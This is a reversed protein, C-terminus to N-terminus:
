ENTSDESETENTEDFMSDFNDNKDKRSMIWDRINELNNLIVAITSTLANKTMTHVQDVSESLENMTALPKDLKNVQINCDEIMKNTTTLTVVLTKLAIILNKVFLILFVLLVLGAVPLLRACVESLLEILQDTGM